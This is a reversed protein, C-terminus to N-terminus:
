ISGFARTPFRWRMENPEHKWSVAEDEATDYFHRTDACGATAALLGLCVLCTRSLGTMLRGPVARLKISEM